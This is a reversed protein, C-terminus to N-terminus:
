IDNLNLFLLALFSEAKKMQFAINPTNGTTNQSPPYFVYGLPLQM